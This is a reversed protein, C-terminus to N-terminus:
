STPLRGTCSTPRRRSRAASSRRPRHRPCCSPRASRVSQNLKFIVTTPNATSQPFHKTLLTQGKASDYGAPPNTSGGFGAAQYGLVAFALGGFFVVGVMLTATPHQVIRGAVRGWIGSGGKGQISWPLLKPKGFMAKFATRKVALLSLRISLLAPLLTLGAVLIVAVAIAFPWALDSYFSFSALLLTLVAAIVTLASASISEGVKLVSYEIAERAAPRPHVVDAAASRWSGRKGPFPEGETDHPRLRLEERVRFVLFLGYDTGAGIV